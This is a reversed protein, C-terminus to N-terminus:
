VEELYLKADIVVIRYNKSTNRDTLIQDKGVVEMKTIKESLDSIRQTNNDVVTRLNTEYSADLSQVSASLQYPQAIYTVSYSATPDYNNQSCSAVLGGYGNTSITIKWTKDPIGNKYIEIFRSVPNKLWSNYVNWKYNIVYTYGTDATGGDPIVNERVVVGEGLEVQNQGAQLVPM